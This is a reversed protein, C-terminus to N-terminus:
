ARRRDLRHVRDQGRRSARRARARRERGHGVLVTLLGEPLGADYAIAQLELATLPTLESPKHIVANGAALAPAIKWSAITLPFNWPTIVGVVGIPERFTM